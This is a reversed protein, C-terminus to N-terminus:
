GSFSNQNFNFVAIFITGENRFHSDANIRISTYSTSPIRVWDVAATWVSNGRSSGLNVM